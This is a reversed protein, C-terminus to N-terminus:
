PAARRNNARDLDLLVRDPDLVVEAPRERTVVEVTQRPERSDLTRTEEGVRLTVPMWADGVRLVEVRTRWRRDPLRRVEVRGVGYDLTATTHLWQHFFWDLNRGSVEEAVARFDEESVHRLRHREYYARLVRRFTEEGLLERLMRFVLSAKTGTMAAYTPYDRFGAGPTAIPQARGAREWQAASQMPGEWIGPNGRQEWYWHTLFSVLGEDLWGERWENNALMGHAWQHAVEHVILGESPSWNMVLMPFETGGREPRHVVTLQPWLYPGFVEQLWQLAHYARRAVERPWGVEGREYLVHIGPLEETRGAEDISLRLVGDYQFTPSASWAFHHVDEAQWRVRKWGPTPEGALLGLDESSEAGVDRAADRRRYFDRRLFEPPPPGGDLRWGPDGEVPVGTAGIVQDAAVELTVDYRAFEGYFEGQPLLPHHQWGRRDFAAIRPYWHAWDYHRGRRGQRRPITSLRASWDLELTTAAGPRLPAPLPVAAVTSDPAGPYAPRVARGDVRVAGFREYAHEAPGLAQFRTEGEGLERRAWASNPRFANLHQHLYLTDLTSRSRNTYRLRARGTLVHTREDLRAEIRYEVGQQFYATDGAPPGALQLALAFLPAPM